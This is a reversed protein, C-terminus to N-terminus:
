QGWSPQGATSRSFERRYDIAARAGVWVLAAGTLLAGVASWAPAWLGISLGALWMAAGLPVFIRMGYLHSFPLYHAGMVVMFAPYFWNIDYFAAAGVVPICLAGVVPIAISAERLPNAPPVSGPNGLLRSALTTVPYIFFGGILLVLVGVTNDAAIWVVASVLWVTGAYIQGVSASRYSYRLEAPAQTLESTIM